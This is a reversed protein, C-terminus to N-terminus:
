YTYITNWEGPKRQSLEQLLFKYRQNRPLKDRVHKWSCDLSYHTVNSIKPPEPKEPAHPKYPVNEEILIDGKKEEEQETM